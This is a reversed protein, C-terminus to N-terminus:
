SWSLKAVMLYFIVILSSFAPLGLLYWLRFLREYRDPLHQKNELCKAIMNRLKIQIYVVPLWFLGIFIYLALSLLIWLSTWSYGMLYMLWFGTVFQIIVAPTTFFFDALVTNQIAFYKQNIDHTYKSRYMFFAICLGGGLLFTSSLIHITKAILYINM